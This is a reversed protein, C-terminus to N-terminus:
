NHLKKPTSLGKLVAAIRKMGEDLIDSQLSFVIRFWGPEVCHVVSGPIIYVKHNLFEEFLAIEGAISIEKMHPRLDAWLFFGAHAPRVYIGLSSLVARTKLAAERLRQQHTPLFKEEIWGPDNLVKTIIKQAVTSVSSYICGNKAAQIFEENWTIIAGLRMGPLNINKSVSWIIHTKNPNPLPKMNIVSQFEFGPEYISMAYVENCIFHIDYKNCVFLLEVVLEPSYVDGLPNNPNVLMFGKVNKGRAIHDRIGDELLAATLEFTATEGYKSSKERLFLDVVQIQFRDNFNRFIRTYCPSPTILVDGPDFLNCALVEMAASGGNVVIVNDAHLPRDPSLLRTLLNAIAERCESTGWMTSHHLDKAEFEFTGPANLRALMIDDCLTSVATGFNVYGGKNTTPNYSDQVCKGLYSLTLEENNLIKRGLESLELCRTPEHTGCFKKIFISFLCKINYLAFLPLVIM